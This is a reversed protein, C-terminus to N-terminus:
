NGKTHFMRDAATSTGLAGKLPARLAKPTVPAVAGESRRSASLTSLQVSDEGALGQCGTTVAASRPSIFQSNGCHPKEPNVLRVLEEYELGFDSLGEELLIGALM